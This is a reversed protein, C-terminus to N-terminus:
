RVPVTIDSVHESCCSLDPHTDCVGVWAGVQGDSFGQAIRQVDVRGPDGRHDLLGLGAEVPHQEGGGGGLVEAGDDGALVERVLGEGQHQACRLRRRLM